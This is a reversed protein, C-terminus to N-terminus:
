LFIFFSTVDEIRARIPIPIDTANAFQLYYKVRSYFFSYYNFYNPIIVTLNKTLHKKNMEYIVLMM